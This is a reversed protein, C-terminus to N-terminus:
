PSPSAPEPARIVAALIRAEAPIVEDEGAARFPAGSGTKVRLVLLGSERLAAPTRGGLATGVPREILSILAEGSLFAARVNAEFASAVFLPAAVLSPGMAVDVDLASEVKRAFDSDFLSAVVRAGPNLKKALLAVGLNVADDGTVAVVAHARAVGAALLISETRADGVIVPTGARVTSLFDADEDRDIAVVPAGVSQLEEITRVGLNGTGVVVVHGSRPARRRGLLTRFREAVVYGTVMSYFTAITASGIVMVVCAFLKMTGSAHLPTIDGYGVTTVTTVVFYFADVISLGLGRSFVFVSLLIVVNLAIFISRLAVSTGLWIRRSAEGWRRPSLPNGTPVRHLASRGGPRASVSLRDWDSKEGLLFVQDGAEILTEPAPLTAASRDAKRHALVTVGQREVKAVALGALPSAPDVTHKGVVMPKGDLQFAGLTRDGLAAGAFAPAALGSVAAARRLGFGSELQRALNQDFLRLVIPIDPRLRKADLAIDLNTVDHGTVVILARASLLGAEKLREANRADALIVKDGRAAIAALWEEPASRTLVCVRIGLAQLLEVVRYGIHGLGCVIVPEEVSSM